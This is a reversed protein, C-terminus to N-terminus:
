QMIKNDLIQYVLYVVIFVFFTLLVLVTYHLKIDDRNKLTPYYAYGVVLGSLLGGIHAANDTNGKMGGLLYYGIFVIMSPLLIERKSAPILSTTLLAIFVGYLGFIAGSAGVSISDAHWYLSFVSGMIGTLLYAVAFKSNNLYPELSFGIIYLAIMNMFLHIIDVHLFCSTFLRWVEGNLTYSRGNAAWSILTQGYSELTFREYVITLAFIIFNSILLLPTFFYGTRFKWLSFFEKKMEKFASANQGKADLDMDVLHPELAKYRMDLEKTNFVFNSHYLKSLFLLVPKPIDSPDAKDINVSESIIVALFREIRLQVLLREESSQIYTYAKLGTHTISDIEWGLEQVVGVAIVLFQERTLGQLPITESFTSGIFDSM